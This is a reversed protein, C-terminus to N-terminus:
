QSILIMFIVLIIVIGLLVGILKKLSDDEKRNDGTNQINVKKPRATVAPQQEQKKIKEEVYSNERAIKEKEEKIEREQEERTKHKSSNIGNHVINNNQKINDTKQWVTSQTKEAEAETERKENIIKIKEAYVVKAVKRMHEFRKKSFNNVLDIKLERWYNYNWEKQNETLPTIDKHTEFLEPVQKQCYEYDEKYKEFTPDVDLCDAFVYKLEKINGSDANEKVAKHM